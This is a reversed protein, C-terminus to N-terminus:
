RSPLYPSVQVCLLEWYPRFAVVMPVYLGLLFQGLRTLLVGVGM